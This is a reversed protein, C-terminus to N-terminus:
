TGSKKPILCAGRAIRAENQLHDARARRDLGTKWHGAVWIAVWIITFGADLDLKIGSRFSPPVIAEPVVEYIFSFWVTKYESLAM